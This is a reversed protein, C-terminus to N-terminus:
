SCQLKVLLVYIGSLPLFGWGMFGFLGTAWFAAPAPLLVWGTLFGWPLLAELDLYDTLLTAGHGSQKKGEFQWDSASMGVFPHTKKAM